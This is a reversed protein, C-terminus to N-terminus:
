TVSCSLVLYTAAENPKLQCQKVATSSKPKFHSQALLAPTESSPRATILASPKRPSRSHSRRHFVFRPFSISSSDPGDPYLIMLTTTTTTVVIAGTIIVISSPPSLHTSSIGRTCICHRIPYESAYRDLM